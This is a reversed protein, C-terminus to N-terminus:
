ANMEDYVEKAANDLLSQGAPSIARGQKDKSVLLGAAELQMMCKRAINRSGKVARNPMSGKDSFGGYEAALRSSGMPGKVYLKRLISASRTYWWDEQMPAKETHRGTKVYEAWEPPSIKDNGKLKEAAKLILKEAPVDYVTVM